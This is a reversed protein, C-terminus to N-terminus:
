LTKNNTGKMEMTKTTTSCCVICQSSNRGTCIRQKVPYSCRVRLFSCIAQRLFLSMVMISTMTATILRFSPPTCHCARFLRFVGPDVSQHDHRFPNQDDAHETEEKETGEVWLCSRIDQHVSLKQREDRCPPQYRECERATCQQYQKDNSGRLTVLSSILAPRVPM